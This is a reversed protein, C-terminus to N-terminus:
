MGFMTKMKQEREKHEALERKLRANEDLTSQLSATHQGVQQRLSNNTASASNFQGTLTNYKQQWENIKSQLTHQNARLIRNEQELKLNDTNKSTVISQQKAVENQVKLLQQRLTSAEHKTNDLQLQLAEKEALETAINNQLTKVTDCNGVTTPTQNFLNDKYSRFRKLFLFNHDLQLIISKRQEELNDVSEKTPGVMKFPYADICALVNPLEPKQYLQNAMQKLARTISKKKKQHHYPSRNRRVNHSKNRRKIEDEVERITKNRLKEAQEEASLCKRKKRQPEVPAFTHNAVTHNPVSSNPFSSVSPASSASSATFSHM